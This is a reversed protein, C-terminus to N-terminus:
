ALIRLAISSAGSTTVRAFRKSRNRILSGATGCVSWSARAQTEVTQNSVTASLPSRLVYWGEGLDLPEWLQGPSYDCSQQVVSAGWNLSDGEVAACKDSHAATILLTGSLAAAEGETYTVGSLVCTDGDADVAADTPSNADSEDPDNAADREAIDDSADYAASDEDADLASDRDAVESDMASAADTSADIGADIETRIGTDLSARADTRSADGADNEGVRAREESTLQEFGIRGCGFLAINLAVSALFPFLYWALSCGTKSRTHKIRGYTDTRWAM